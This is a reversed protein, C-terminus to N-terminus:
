LKFFFYTNLFSQVARTCLNVYIAGWIGFIPLLILFLILKLINISFTIIYQQKTKAHANLVNGFFTTPFFFLTLAFVQSYPVADLYQPFFIKFLWPALIIYTIIFPAIILFLKFIKIPLTKKLIEINTQSFKPMALPKLTKFLSRIQNPAAMSFSYVALSVAGLYHFLLLKDINKIITGVIHMFSLHKGYAITGPEEKTSPRYKKLIIKFNILKIITESAFYTLILIIVSNTLYLAILMALATFITTIVQFKASGKFNKRGSLLANGLRFADKFPLFVAGILLGITLIQNGQWFYYGALGLCAMSGMLGWKIKIKVAPIISGEYGRAVARTVATIMDGLTTISFLGILSLIYKYMGFTERPLWNALALALFFASLSSIIRGQTLWFSGKAIYVMDTKTYKESKRLWTYLKVKVTTILKM